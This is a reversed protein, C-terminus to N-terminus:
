DTGYSAIAFAIRRNRSRGDATANSAIPQTEGYGNAVLRREPIGNAVLYYVVSAARKRSLEANYDASGLSDTHGAVEVTMGDCQQIIDRLTDLVPTSQPTLISSNQQFNVSRTRSLIEFRGECAARSLAGDPELATASTAIITEAPPAGKRSFAFNFTVATAPTITVEAAEELKAVGELLNFDAIQLIIPDASVVRVNNNDAVSVTVQETVDVEAGHLSLTVPLDMELHSGPSLRAFTAPDLNATITAEPYNFTEFLLFRMRVNRLDISTDVSDLPIKIIAQGDEDITGNITAFRSHEMISGKKVSVFNLTSADSNIQWGGDFPNEQALLTQAFLTVLTVSLCLLKNM